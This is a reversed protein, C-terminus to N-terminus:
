TLSPQRYRVLILWFALGKAAPQRAWATPAKTRVVCQGWRRRALLLSVCPWPRGLSRAPKGGGIHSRAAQATRRPTSCSRSGHGGVLYGSWGTHRCGGADAGQRGRERCDAGGPAASAVARDAGCPRPRRAAGAGGVASLTGRSDGSSTGARGFGGGARTLPPQPRGGRVRATPTQCCAQARACTCAHPLRGSPPPVVAQMTQDGSM